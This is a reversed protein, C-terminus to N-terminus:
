LDGIKYVTKRHLFGKTSQSSEKGRIFDIAESRTLFHTDFLFFRIKKPDLELVEERIDVLNDDFVATGYESEVLKFHLNSKEEEIRLDKKANKQLNLYHNKVLHRRSYMIMPYSLVTIIVPKSALNVINKVEAETIDSSLVLSDFCNLWFNVTCANNNLHNQFCILEYDSDKLAYYLGTDEIVIGSVNKPMELKLFEDIDEDTLIRNVLIYANVESEAIEKLDFSDYGISFDKLPFLFHKIGEELYKPIDGLVSVNLLIKDRNM